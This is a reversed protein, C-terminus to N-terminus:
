GKHYQFYPEQFVINGSTNNSTKSKLLFNYAIPTNAHVKEWMLRGPGGECEVERVEGKGEYSFFIRGAVFRRPWGWERLSLGLMWSIAFNCAHLHPFLHFSFPFPIVRAVDKNLFMSLSVGCLM